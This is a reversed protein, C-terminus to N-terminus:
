CLTLAQCVPRPRQNFFEGEMIGHAYAQDVLRYQHKGSAGEVRTKRIVLPVQVGPIIVILNGSKCRDHASLCSYRTSTRFPQAGNKSLMLNRIMGVWRKMRVDVSEVGSLILENVPDRMLRMFISLSTMLTFGYFADTPTAPQTIAQRGIIAM